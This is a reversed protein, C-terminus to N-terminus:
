FLLKTLTPKCGGPRHSPQCGGPRHSPGTNKVGGVFKELSATPLEILGAPSEPLMARQADNLSERYEADKWARIIDLGNM